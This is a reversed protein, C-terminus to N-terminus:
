PGAIARARIRPYVAWLTVARLLLWIWVSLWLGDNGLWLMMAYSLPAFIATSVIMADRMEASATAGVFVGDLVFAWVGLLPILTAWFLYDRALSRIEPATTFVDVIAGGSLTFGLAIVASLAGAWATAYWVSRDLRRVDRAGLAQGVLTESAIAFGDMAFASLAFFQWLVTNVALIEDGQISGLRTMWIIAGVLLLTRIFLNRNLAFLQILADRQFLRAREPRWGAPLIRRARGLALFVGFGLGMWSAIATGIAVGAVGWGAYTVLTVNLTINCLALFVQQAVLRRVQEQGAFWGLFAYNMLEAPAGLMRYHYYEATLAETEASAEFIGLFIWILPIQFAFIVAGIAAGILLGRLLVNALRDFARAGVAQAALGSVGIQLFNFVGFQLSFIEAGLGVAALATVEGLRGIIATDVAGQLPVTVNSLVVPVAIALVRWSTVERAAPPEARDTDETSNSM